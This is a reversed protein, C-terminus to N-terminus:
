AGIGGLTELGGDASIIFTDALHSTRCGHTSVSYKGGDLGTALTAGTGSTQGVAGTADGLADAGDGGGLNKLVDEALSSSVMDTLRVFYAIRGNCTQKRSTSAAKM